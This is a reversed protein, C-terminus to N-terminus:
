FVLWNLSALQYSRLSGGNEFRPSSDLKVFNQLMTARCYPQTGAPAIARPKLSDRHYRKLSKTDIVDELLEWSCDSYALGQWKVFVWAKAHEGSTSAQKVIQELHADSHGTTQEWNTSSDNNCVVFDLIREVVTPLDAMDDFTNSAEAGLYKKM